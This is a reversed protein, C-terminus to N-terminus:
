LSQSKGHILPALRITGVEDDAFQDGIREYRVLKQLENPAGVPALLIGGDALQDLLVSSVSPVSGTLLIRDFPSQHQWGELGDDHLSVINSLKLHEWRNQALRLLTGYKEITFVRRAFRSLLATAYGSGTGIELIKPVTDDFKLKSLMHAVKVPSTMSQGCEIPLACDKYAYQAYEEPLFLEHPVKEFADVVIRQTIGKQRLTLALSAKAWELNTSQDDDQM